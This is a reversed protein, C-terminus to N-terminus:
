QPIQIFDGNIKKNPNISRSALTKAIRVIAVLERLSIEVANSKMIISFPIHLM